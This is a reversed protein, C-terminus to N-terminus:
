GEEKELRLTMGDQILDQCVNSRSDNQEQAIMDVVDLLERRLGIYIQVRVKGDPLKTRHGRKGGPNAVNRRERNEPKKTYDRKSLPDSM